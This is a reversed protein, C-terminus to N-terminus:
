IKEARVAQVELVITPWFSVDLIFDQPRTESASQDLGQSQNGSIEFM